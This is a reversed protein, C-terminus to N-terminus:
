KNQRAAHSKREDEIEIVKRRSTLGRVIRIRSRRVHFYEALCNVLAKNARGDVAPATLRVKLLGAEERITNQRANPIVHVSLQRINSLAM